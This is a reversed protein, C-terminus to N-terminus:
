LLLFMLCRYCFLLVIRIEKEKEFDFQVIEQQNGGMVVTHPADPLRHMCKMDVM